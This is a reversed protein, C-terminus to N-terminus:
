ETRAEAGKPVLDLGGTFAYSVYEDYAYVVIGLPAESEIQHVGPEISVSFVEFSDRGLEVFTRELRADEPINRGNLAVAANPAAAVTVYTRAFTPSTVFSYDRRFQEVPPLIFMSPDGSQRGYRRFGTSEHGSIIGAIIVRGDAELAVPVTTGIECVEGESLSFVGDQANDLCSSTWTNSPPLTDIEDLNPDTSITADEDAVIRWYTAEMVDANELARRRTPTLVYRSGLTDAPLLQEELHDCAWQDQPVFTCPHGTFAAVPSSSRIEVGSLDPRARDQSAITLLTSSNADVTLGGTVDQGLENRLLVDSEFSLEADQEGAVVMVYPAEGSASDNLFFTPYSVVRYRDGWTYTPLLLSADNTATFNCCYPSFQSAVVPRTTRIDFRSESDEMLFVGASQPPLKQSIAFGEFPREEGGPLLVASAVRTSSGLLRREPDLEVSDLLKAPNGSSDFISVEVDLLPNPNAVVIAFPPANAGSATYEYLNPLRQATYTCGLYSLSTEAAACTDVCTGGLCVDSNECLVRDVYGGGTSDCTATADTGLCLPRDPTCSFLRCRGADCIEGAPCLTRSYGQGFEDCVNVIPSNQAVCIRSGPVCLQEPPDLPGADVFGADVAGSVSSPVPLPVPQRRDNCALTFLAAVVIALAYRVNPHVPNTDSPM